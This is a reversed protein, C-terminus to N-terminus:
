PAVAAVLTTANTRSRAIRTLVGTFPSRKKVKITQGLKKVRFCPFARKPSCSRRLHFLRVSAKGILRFVEAAAMIAVGAAATSLMIPTLPFPRGKRFPM